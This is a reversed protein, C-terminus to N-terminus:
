NMAFIILICKLNEIKGIGKLCTIKFSLHKLIDRIQKFAYPFNWFSWVIGYKPIFYNEWAFCKGNLISICFFKTNEFPLRNSHSFFWVLKHKEEVFTVCDLHVWLNTFDSLNYKINWGKLNLTTKMVVRM